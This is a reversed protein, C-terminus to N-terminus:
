KLNEEIEKSLFKKYCEPCVGHTFDANTKQSIFKELQVWAQINEQQKATDKIKKCYSCIPLLGELMIVREKEHSLKELLYAILIGMMCGLLGFFLTMNLHSYKFAHLLTQINFTMTPNTVGQFIMSFPHLILVGIILGFLGGLLFKHQTKKM